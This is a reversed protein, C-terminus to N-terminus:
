WLDGHLISPKVKGELPALLVPYVKDRMQKELEKLEPDKIRNVM